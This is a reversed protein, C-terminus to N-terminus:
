YRLSLFVPDFKTSLFSTNLSWNPFLIFGWNLKITSLLMLFLKFAFSKSMQFDNMFIIQIQNSALQAGWVLRPNAARWRKYTDYRKM